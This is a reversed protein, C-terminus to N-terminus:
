ANLLSAAEALVSSVEVANFAARENTSFTSIFEGNIQRVTILMAGQEDVWHVNMSRIRGTGRKRMEVRRDKGEILEIKWDNM